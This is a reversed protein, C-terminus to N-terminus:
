EAPSPVAFAVERMEAIRGEHMTFVALVHFRHATTGTDGAITTKGPRSEADIDYEMAVGQTGFELYASPAAFTVSVYREPLKGFYRELADYGEAMLVGNAIIRGSPAWQREITERDAAAAGVCRASVWGLLDELIRRHLFPPESVSTMELHDM